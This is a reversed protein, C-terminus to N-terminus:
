IEPVLPLGVLTWEQSSASCPISPPTGARAQREQRTVTLVFTLTTACWVNTDSALFDVRVVLM